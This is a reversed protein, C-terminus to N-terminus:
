IDELVVQNSYIFLNVYWNIFEYYNAKIEQYKQEEIDFFFSVYKDTEAKKIIKNEFSKSFDKISISKELLSIDPNMMVRNYISYKDDIQFIKQFCDYADININCLYKQLRKVTDPGLSTHCLKNTISIIFRNYENTEEKFLHVIKFTTEDSYFLEEHIFSDISITLGQVFVEEPKKKYQKKELLYKLALLKRINYNIQQMLRVWLMEQISKTIIPATNKQTERQSRLTKIAINLTFFAVVFAAISILIAVWDWDKLALQDAEDKIWDFINM